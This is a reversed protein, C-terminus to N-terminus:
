HYFFLLWGGIIAEFLLATLGGIALLANFGPRVCKIGYGFAFSVSTFIGLWGIIPPIIEYTVFLISYALTGFSWFIMAFSFKSHHTELILRGKQGLMKKETGNASVYQRATNLLEWYGIESYCYILGEVTRLITGVIGIIVSYSNFAIFLMIALAIVCLHEIVALIISIKFKNPERNIKYLKTDSDYEGVGIKRGLVVMVANLILILLFLFGCIRIEIGM